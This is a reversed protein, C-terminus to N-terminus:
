PDMPCSFDELAPKEAHEAAPLVSFSGDTELVVVQTSADAIGQSRIAQQIESETVRQSRMATRLFEGRYLLLTPEGRVIRRIAGSRVSLWTVVFQLLILLALAAIGETLAVDKSLIVTALTSGLAVTVVLDFANMKALTRKGSLRLIIILSAYALISTVVTRAINEWSDFFM